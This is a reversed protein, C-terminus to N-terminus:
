DHYSFLQFLNALSDTLAEEGSNADRKQQINWDQENCASSIIFSVELRGYRKRKGCPLIM